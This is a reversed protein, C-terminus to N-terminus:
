QNIIALNSVDESDLKKLLYNLLMSGIGNKQEEIKVCMENIFFENGSWWVKQAGFIFGIFVEEKVAIIGTFGPTNIYDLLYQKAAEISWKDNWRQQNSM